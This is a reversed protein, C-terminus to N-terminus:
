AVKKDTTFVPKVQIGLVALLQLMKDVSKKHNAQDLLRNLQSPSTKLRRCIENKSLKSTKIGKKAQVSLEYLFLMRLFDPDSNYDLFIDLHISGEDGSELHYTIAEKGLEPDIYINTIKNSTPSYKELRSLPYDFDGKVTQITICKKHNNIQFSKIKM